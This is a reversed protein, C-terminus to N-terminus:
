LGEGKWLAIQWLMGATLFPVFPLTTRRDARKRVLLVISCASVLLLGGAIAGVLVDASVINGLVVLCAADGYGIQQRTLFALVFATMGPALAALRRECSFGEFALSMVFFAAGFLILMKVSLSKEKIDQLSCLILFFFVGVVKVMEWM